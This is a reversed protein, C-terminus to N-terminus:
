FAQLVTQRASSVVCAVVQYASHKDVSHPDEPSPPPSLIYYFPKGSRPHTSGRSKERPNQTVHACVIGRQRCVGKGAGM